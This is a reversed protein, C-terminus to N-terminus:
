CLFFSINEKEYFSFNKGYREGYLEVIRTFEQESVTGMGLWNSFKNNEFNMNLTEFNIGEYSINKYEIGGDDNQYNKGMKKIVSDKTEGWKVNKFGTSSFIFLSLFMFFILIRKM